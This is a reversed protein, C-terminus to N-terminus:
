SIVGLLFYPFFEVIRSFSLYYGAKNDFGILIGALFAASLM